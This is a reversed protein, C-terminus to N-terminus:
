IPDINLINIFEVIDSEYLQYLVEVYNHKHFAGNQYNTLAKLAYTKAESPKGMAHLVKSKYFNGDATTDYNYALMKDLNLLAKDYHQMKFHAIGNYLFTTTEVWDEGANKTELAIHNEFNVIANNYDKKGLYAIGRWYDVSQGQPSDKFGPTLSDATNFDAIAGDYDRHFLLHLYGRMPIWVDPDAAVAKDYRLRWEDMMGRKLYAVSLERLADSNTPDIEIAKLIRNMSAASGQYHGGGDKFVKMSLARREAPSLAETSEKACACLLLICLSLFYKQSKVM